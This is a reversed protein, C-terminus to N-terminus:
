QSPTRTLRLLEIQLKEAEGTKKAKTAAEMMLEILGPQDPYEPQGARFRELTQYAELPRGAALDARALLFTLRARQWESDALKLAQGYSEAAATANTTAAQLDGLKELLVASRRTLPERELYGIMEKDAAGTVLNLNVVRLHSWEILRSGRRALDEHQLRAPRGLPRYLPDGVVITQWSLWAQAAYAAEGLSFGGLILRAFFIGLDPTGMLYPEEVSGMTATVGKALLWPVWTKDTTRLKPANYSHLHYAVAGPMFDVRDRAFPGSAQGDYWGAYLAVQSLPFAPGFTEGREDVVTEYGARRAVQSAARIWDDGLKYSGETISRLDFYARGWLGDREAVLAKDVLGRAVEPTPGDLRTVMLLGNAPHLSAANSAGYLPNKLPGGLSFRKEDHPLLALENDVAADNRRMEPRLDPPSTEVISGDGPIKIPVGYCMVAYRIKTREVTRFVQGPKGEEATKIETKFAWLGRRELEASLPARLKGRFEQRTMTEGTPLDLGILNNTPVQRQRAYHAAVEFSEPMARNFVVVVANGTEARSAVPERLLFPQAASTVLGAVTILIFGATRV